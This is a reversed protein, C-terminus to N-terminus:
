LKFFEKIREISYCLVLDEPFDITRLMEKMKDFVGVSYACHADSGITIKTNETACMVAIDRCRKESAPNCLTVANLEIAKNQIRAGRVVEKINFPQGMRGCHGLIHVNPNELAKLYENTNQNITYSLNVKHVSAIVLDSCEFAVELVTKSHDYYYPIGDHELQGNENMIDLEVGHIIEIQHMSKPLVKRNAIGAIINEINNKEYTGFHDSIVIARMGNEGGHLCNEEITSYAHNTLITHVHADVTINL